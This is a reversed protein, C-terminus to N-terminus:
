EEFCWDTSLALTLNNGYVFYQGTICHLLDASSIKDTRFYQVHNDQCRFLLYFAEGPYKRCRGSDAHVGRRWAKNDEM